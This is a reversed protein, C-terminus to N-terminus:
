TGRWASGASFVPAPIAGFHRLVDGSARFADPQRKKDLVIVGSGLSPIMMFAGAQVGAGGVDLQKLFLKLSFERRVSLVILKRWPIPM